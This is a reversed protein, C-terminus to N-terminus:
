LRFVIQITIWTSKTTKTESFWSLSMVRGNLNISKLKSRRLHAWVAWMDCISEFTMGNEFSKEVKVRMWNEVMSQKSFLSFSRFILIFLSEFKLSLLSVCKVNQLRLVVFSCFCCVHCISDYFNNHYTYTHSQRIRQSSLFRIFLNDIHM